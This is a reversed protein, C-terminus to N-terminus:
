TCCIVLMNSLMDYVYGFIRFICDTGKFHKSWHLADDQCRNYIRNWNQRQVLLSVEVHQHGLCCTAEAKNIRSTNKDRMYLRWTNAGPRLLYFDGIEGGCAAFASHSIAKDKSTQVDRHHRTQIQCHGKVELQIAPILHDSYITVTINDSPSWALFFICM